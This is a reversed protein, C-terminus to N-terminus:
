SKQMFYPTRPMTRYMKQTASVHRHVTYIMQIRKYVYSNKLNNINDSNQLKAQNEQIWLLKAFRIESTSIFKNLKLKRGSHKKKLNTVFRLVWASLRFLKMDSFHEIIINGIGFVEKSTSVLTTSKKIIERGFETIFEYWKGTNRNRPKRKYMFNRRKYTKFLFNGGKM